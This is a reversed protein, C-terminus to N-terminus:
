ILWRYKWTRTIIYNCLLQKPARTTPNHPKTSLFKEYHTLNKIYDIKTGFSSHFLQSKVSEFWWWMAHFSFFLYCKPFFYFFLLFCLFLFLFFSFFLFISACSSFSSSAFPFVKGGSSLTTSFRSISDGQAFDCHFFQKSPTWDMNQFLSHTTCHQDSCMKNKNPFFFILCSLSRAWLSKEM